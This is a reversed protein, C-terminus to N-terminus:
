FAEMANFFGKLFCRGETYSETLLVWFAAIRCLESTDLNVDWSSRAKIAAIPDSENGMDFKDLALCALREWTDVEEANQVQGSLGSWLQHYSRELSRPPPKPPSM